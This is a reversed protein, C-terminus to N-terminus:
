NSGAKFPYDVDIFSRSRRAASIRSLFLMSRLMAEIVPRGASVPWVPSYIAALMKSIWSTSDAESFPISPWKM